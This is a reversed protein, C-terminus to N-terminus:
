IRGMPSLGGRGGYNRCRARESSCPTSEPDAASDPRDRRLFTEWTFSEEESRAERHEHSPRGGRASM